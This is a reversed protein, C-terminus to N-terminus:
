GPGRNGQSMAGEEYDKKICSVVRPVGPAHGSDIDGKKSFRKEGDIITLLIAWEDVRCIPRAAATM